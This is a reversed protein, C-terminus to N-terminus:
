ELSRLFLLLLLNLKQLIKKIKINENINHSFDQTFICLFFSSTRANLFIDRDM